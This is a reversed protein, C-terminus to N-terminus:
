FSPISSAPNVTDCLHRMSHSFTPHNNAHMWRVARKIHLSSVPLSSVPSPNMAWIDSDKVALFGFLGHFHKDIKTIANVEGQFHRYQTM